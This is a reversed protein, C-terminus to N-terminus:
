NVYTNKQYCPVFIEPKCIYMRVYSAKGKFKVYIYSNQYCIYMAAGLFFIELVYYECVNTALRKIIPCVKESVFKVYVKPPLIFITSHYEYVYEKSNVCNITPCPNEPMSVYCYCVYSDSNRM